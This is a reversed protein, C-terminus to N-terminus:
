FNCISYYGINKLFGFGRVILRMRNFSSIDSEILRFYISSHVVECTDVM